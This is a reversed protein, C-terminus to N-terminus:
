AALRVFSLPRALRLNIPSGRDARFTEGDLIVQSNDGEITIEDAEEFHVGRVTNRGLRGGISAALGRLMSWPSEEVALLKLSGSRRGGLESSLLLKELTTVALLSFRGSIRNGKESLSVNLPQLDPPLFSAKIRLVMKMLLAFATIGHAVGNPLGLPYIKDRCYLMTDALGAGGLFMGIVPRDEAGSRRLAILERAVTNSAIDGSRALSILRELAEIPDGRAGLDLAILNTKGSPLVAVPPPAEGFHGGNTLETLVAQVTGDGGNIALVKPRVRAITKIAEGIQSADEVEYHFVDPHEACYARIRPLQAINGTSKPNSLLAIRARPMRRPSSSAPACEGCLPADDVGEEIGGVKLM